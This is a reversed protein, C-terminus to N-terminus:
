GRESYIEDRDCHVEQGLHFARVKFPKRTPVNTQIEAIDAQLSQLIWEIVRLREAVPAQRLHLLTEQAIM